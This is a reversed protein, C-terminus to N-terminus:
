VEDIKLLDLSYNYGRKNLRVTAVVEQCEAEPILIGNFCICDISKYDKGLTVIRFVDGSKSLKDKVSVLDARVEALM